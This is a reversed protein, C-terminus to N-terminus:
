ADLFEHSGPENQLFNHSIIIQDFLIWLKKYNASGATYSLLKSTANYLETGQILQSISESRPGDNFDGMVIYKPKVVREEIRVMYARITQSAKIRKYATEMGGE